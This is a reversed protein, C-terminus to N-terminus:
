FVYTLSGMVRDNGRFKSIFSTSASTGQPVGFVDGSVAWVWDRDERWNVGAQVWEGQDGLSYVYKLEVDVERSYKRILNFNASLGAMKEFQFKSTSAEIDGKIITAEKADHKADKQVYSVNVSARKFNFPTLSQSFILGTYRSDILETQQWDENVNPEQFEELTSSIVMQSYAWKYGSEVTYLRQRVVMPYVPATFDINKINFIGEPDVALHFQNQPKDALALRLYGGYNPDGLRTMIAYSNQQLVDGVSPEKVKYFVEGGSHEFNASAVPARFWRNASVIKGGVERYSPQQDPLYFGSVMIVTKSQDGQFEFFAGSLGQEIPQSADWRVLPHWVGLDWFSDMESWTQMKRGLSFTLRSQPIERQYYMEPVAVGLDVGDSMPVVALGHTHFVDNVNEPSGWRKFIVFSPSISSYQKDQQSIQPKGSYNTQTLTVDIFSIPEIAYSSQSFFLVQCSITLLLLRLASWHNYASLDCM